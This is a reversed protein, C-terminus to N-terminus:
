SRPTPRGAGPQRALARIGAAARRASRKGVTVTATVFHPPILAVSHLHFRRFTHSHLQICTLARVALRIPNLLDRTRIEGGRNALLRDQRYNRCPRKRATRWLSLVLSLVSVRASTEGSAKRGNASRRGSLYANESRGTSECTEAARHGAAAPQARRMALHQQEVAL